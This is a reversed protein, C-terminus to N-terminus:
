NGEAGTGAGDEGTAASDDPQPSPVDPPVQCNGGCWCSDGGPCEDAKGTAADVFHFGDAIFAPADPADVTAGVAIPAQGDKTSAGLAPVSVYGSEAPPLRLRKSGKHLGGHPSICTVQRM